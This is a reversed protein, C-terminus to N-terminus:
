QARRLNPPTGPQKDAQLHNKLSVYEQENIEGKALRRNLIDLPAERLDQWRRRSVPTWFAFLSLWILGWFVWWLVHMGYFGTNYYYM